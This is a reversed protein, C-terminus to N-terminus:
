ITMCFSPFFFGGERGAKSERTEAKLRGVLAAASDDPASDTIMEATNSKSTQPSMKGKSLVFRFSFFLSSSSIQPCFCLKLLFVNVLNMKFELQEPFTNRELYIHRETKIQVSMKGIKYYATQLIRIGTTVMVVM